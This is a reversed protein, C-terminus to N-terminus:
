LPSLLNALIVTVAAAVSLRLPTGQSSVSIAVTCVTSNDTLEKDPSCGVVFTKRKDPFMASPVTFVFKDAVAKWWSQQYGRFLSSYDKVLCHVVSPGDCYKSSYHLPHIFYGPGGCSVGFSPSKKTVDAAVTVSQGYSCLVEDMTVETPRAQVVVSVLCGTDTNPAKCGIKFKTEELPFQNEPITFTYAGEELKLWAKESSPILSELSRVTNKAAGSPGVSCEALSVTKWDCVDPGTSLTSPVVSAAAGCELVVSHRTAPHLTVTTRLLSSPEAPCKIRNGIFGLERRYGPLKELAAAVYICLAFGIAASAARLCSWMSYFARASGFGIVM